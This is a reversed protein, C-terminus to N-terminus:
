LHKLWVYVAGAGGDRPIASCFALVEPMQKLWHNVLNKILPTEGQKAGGKGHVILVYRHELQCQQTIFNCLAEQAKSSTYGHLDLKGQWRIQGSKLKSLSKKPLSPIQYSLISEAQLVEQYASSLPILMEKAISLPKTAQKPKPIPPRSAQNSVKKIKKLPTVLKMAENFLVHEDDLKNKDTM